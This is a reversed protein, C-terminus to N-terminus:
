NLMELDGGMAALLVLATRDKGDPGKRPDFGADVLEQAIKVSSSNSHWCADEFIDGKPPAKHLNSGASVLMKFITYHNNRAAWCVASRGELMADCNAGAELLATVRAM